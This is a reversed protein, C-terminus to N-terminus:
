RLGLFVRGRGYYPLPLTNRPKRGLRNNIQTTASSTQETPRPDYNQHMQMILTNYFFGDMQTNKLIFASIQPPPVVVPKRVEHGPPRTRERNAVMMPVVTRTALITRTALLLPGEEELMRFSGGGCARFQIKKCTEDIITSNQPGATVSPGGNQHEIAFPSQRTTESDSRM